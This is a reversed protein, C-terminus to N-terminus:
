APVSSYVLSLAPFEDDSDLVDAATLARCNTLATPPRQITDQCSTEWSDARFCPHVMMPRSACRSTPTTTTATTTTSSAYAICLTSQSDQSHHLLMIGKLSSGILLLISFTLHMEATMTALTGDLSPDSSENQIQIFHLHIASLPILRSRAEILIL